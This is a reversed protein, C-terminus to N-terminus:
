CPSLYVYVRYFAPAGARNREPHISKMQCNLCACRNMSTAKSCWRATLM